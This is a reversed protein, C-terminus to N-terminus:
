LKFAGSLGITHLYQVRTEQFYYNRINMVGAVSINKTLNFNVSNLWDVDIVTFPSRLYDTFADVRTSYKINKAITTSYETSLFAGLGFQIRKDKAVGFAEVNSFNKGFKTTINATVPSIYVKFNNRPRYMIGWGLRVVGPAMFSNAVGTKTGVSNYINSPALQTNVNLRVAHFWKPKIQPAWMSSIMLQDQAKRFRDLTSPSRLQGYVWRVDNLFLRSGKKQDAKLVANLTTTINYKEAAGVWDSTNTWVGGFLIDTSRKWGDPLKTIDVAEIAAQGEADRAKQAQTSAVFGSLALTLLIKKM